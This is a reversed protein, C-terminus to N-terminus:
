ITKLFYIRLIPPLLHLFFEPKKPYM